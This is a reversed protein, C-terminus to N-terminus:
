APRYFGAVELTVVADADSDNKLYWGHIGSWPATFQGNERVGNAKSYFMLDGVGDARKETHGHFESIFVDPSAIDGFDISYVIADGENMELKYELDKGAAVPIRIVDTRWKFPQMKVVGERLPHEVWGNVPAPLAAAGTEVPTAAPTALAEEPAPQPSCALGPLAFVAILAVASIKRM